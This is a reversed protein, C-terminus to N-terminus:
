SGTVTVSEEQLKDKSFIFTPKFHADFLVTGLCIKVTLRQTKM